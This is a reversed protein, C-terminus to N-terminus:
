GASPPAQTYLISSAFVPVKTARDIVASNWEGNGPEVERYKVAVSGTTGRFRWLLPVDAASPLAAPLGKDAEDSTFTTGAWLTKCVSLPCIKLLGSDASPPKLPDTMVSSDCVYLNTNAAVYAADKKVINGSSDLDYDRKFQVPCVCTTPASKTTDLTFNEQRCSYMIALTDLVPSFKTPANEGGGCKWDGYCWNSPFSRATRNAQRSLSYLTAMVVTTLILVCFIIFVFINPMKKKRLISFFQLFLPNESRFHAVPVWDRERLSWKPLLQGLTMKEGHQCTELRMKVM